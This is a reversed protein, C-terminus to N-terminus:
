GVNLSYGNEDRGSSTEASDKDERQDEGEPAEGGREASGEIDEREEEEAAEGIGPRDPHTADGCNQIDDGENGGHFLEEKGFISQSHM